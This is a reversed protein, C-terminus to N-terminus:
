RHPHQAQGHHKDYLHFLESPRVDRRQQLQLAFAIGLRNAVIDREDRSGELKFVSELWEVLEGVTDAVDPNNLVLQLLASGFFHPLKDRDGSAPTTLFLRAPLRRLRAAFHEESETSVPVIVTWGLLPVTAPFRRYPLTAWTLALLAVRADGEAGRLAMAYLLDLRRVDEERTAAEREPLARIADRLDLMVVLEAPYLLSRLARAISWEPLPPLASRSTDGAAPSTGSAFPNGSALALARPQADLTQWPCLSLVVTCTAVLLVICQSRILM